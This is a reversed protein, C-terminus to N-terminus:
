NRLEKFSDLNVFQKKKMLNDVSLNMNNIEKLFYNPLSAFFSIEKNKYQFSMFFSHLFFYKNYIKESSKVYFREEGLIPYGLFAFHKRLQNKRGTYPYAIVLSINNKTKLVSYYTLSDLRKNNLIIPTNIFGNTIRPCGNILLLYEKKIKRSKFQQGLNQAYELNRAVIILGSTKKDIRHVLKPRVLNESKFHGLLADLSIKVRSGGQVAFGSPKNFVLINKDEFIIM